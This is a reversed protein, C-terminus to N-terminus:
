RKTKYECGKMTYAIIRSMGYEKYSKSYHIEYGEIQILREDQIAKRDAESIFLVTPKLTNIAGEINSMKNEIGRACNWHLVTFSDNEELPIENEKALLNLIEENGEKECKIKAKETELSESNSESSRENTEQHSESSELVELSSAIFSPRSLDNENEEGNIVNQYLFATPQIHRRKCDNLSCIGFLYANRCLHPHFCRCPWFKCGHPLRGGQLFKRCIKQNPFFRYFNQDPRRRIRNNPNAPSQFDLPPQVHRDHCSPKFCFGFLYSKRCLQPHSLKCDWNQCGHPFRGGQLFKQCTDSPDSSGM